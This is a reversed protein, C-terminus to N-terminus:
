TPPDLLVWLRAIRGDVIEAVDAGTVAVPGGRPGAQWALRALGHHGVATAIPVFAFDAGFKQLLQGAVQSIADRGQVIDTPEFMVPTEVFLEAIAAERKAPDRENFVRNLNSRLLHDYDTVADSM